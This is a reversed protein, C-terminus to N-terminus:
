IEPKEMERLKSKAKMPIFKITIEFKPPDNVNHSEKIDFKLIGQPEDSLIQKLLVVRLWKWKKIFSKDPEIPHHIVDGTTWTGTTNNFPLTLTGTTTVGTINDFSM